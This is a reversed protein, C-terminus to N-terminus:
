SGALFYCANRLASATEKQTSAMSNEEAGLFKLNKIESNQSKM